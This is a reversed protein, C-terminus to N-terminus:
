PVYCESNVLVWQSAISKFMDVCWANILSFGTTGDGYVPRNTTGIPAANVSVNWITITQGPMSVPDPFFLEYTLDGGDTIKYFGPTVIQYNATLLNFNYTLEQTCPESIWYTGDSIFKVTMGGDIDPFVISTYGQYVPNNGNFSIRAPLSTDQNVITISHGKFLAPNPFEMKGSVDATTIRYLGFTEIVYNGLSLDIDFVVEGSNICGWTGDPYSILEYEALAPITDSSKNTGRLYFSTSTIAPRIPDANIIVIRKGQLNALTPDPLVLNYPPTGAIDTGITVRYIGETSINYNASSLDIANYVPMTTYLPSGASGDGGITVGDVSVTGTGGSSVLPNGPTGDGTITTGDVSIQVIPNLPDTNDTNLGTVSEVGGGGGGPIDVTVATGVNTVTVGAGTFDISTAATTLTTGDDKITLASGGGSNFAVGTLKEMQRSIEWLLNSEQSWGIQKRPIAM